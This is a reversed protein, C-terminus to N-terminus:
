ISRYFCCMIYIYLIHSKRQRQLDIKYVLLFHLHLLLFWLRRWLRYNPDIVFGVFELVMVALFGLKTVDTSSHYDTHIVFVYVVCINMVNIIYISRVRLLPCTPIIFAELALLFCYTFFVLGSQIIIFISLNFFIGSFWLLQQLVRCYGLRKKTQVTCYCGCSCQISSLVVCTVTVFSSYGATEQM